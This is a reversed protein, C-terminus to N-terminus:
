SKSIQDCFPKKIRNGSCQAFSGPDVSATFCTDKELHHKGHAAGNHHIRYDAAEKNRPHIEYICLHDEICTDRGFIRNGDPQELHQILTQDVIVECLETGSTHQNGTRNGDQKDNHLFEM